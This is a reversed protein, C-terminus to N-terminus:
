EFTNVKVLFKEVIEIGHEVLTGRLRLGAFGRLRLMWRYQFSRNLLLLNSYFDVLYM